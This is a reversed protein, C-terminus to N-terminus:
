GGATWVGCCTLLLMVVVVLFLFFIFYEAASMLTRENVEVKLGDRAIDGGGGSSANIMRIHYFLCDM